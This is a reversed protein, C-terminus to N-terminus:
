WIRLNCTLFNKRVSGSSILRSLLEPVSLPHILLLRLWDGIALRPVQGSALPVMCFEWVFSGVGNADISRHLVFTAWRVNLCARNETILM